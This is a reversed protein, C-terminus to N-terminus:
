GSTSSRDLHMEWFDPVLRADFGTLGMPVEGNAGHWGCANVWDVSVLFMLVMMAM